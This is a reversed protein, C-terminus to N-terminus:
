ARSAPPLTATVLDDIFRDTIEEGTILARYCIPGALRDVLVTTSNPVDYPM